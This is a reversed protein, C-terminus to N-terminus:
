LFIVIFFVQSVLLGVRCSYGFYANVRALELCNESFHSSAPCSSAKLGVGKPGVTGYPKRRLVKSAYSQILRHHHGTRDFQALIEVNLRKPGARQACLFIGPRRPTGSPM